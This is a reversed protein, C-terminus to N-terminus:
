FPINACFVPIQLLVIYRAVKSEEWNECHWDKYLTFLADVILGMTLLVLTNRIPINQTQLVLLISILFMTSAIADKIYGVTVM